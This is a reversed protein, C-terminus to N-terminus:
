WKFLFVKSACHLPTWGDITEARVNAGRLLLSRVVDPHGESSAKHLAGYGDEDRIAFFAIWDITEM